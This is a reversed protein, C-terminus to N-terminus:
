LGIFNLIPMDSHEFEGLDCAIHSIMEHPVFWGHLNECEGECSHYIDKRLDWEVGIPERDYHGNFSCVTGMQGYVVECDPDEEEVFM